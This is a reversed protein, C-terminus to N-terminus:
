ESGPGYFLFFFDNVEQGMSCFFFDNVEQGMSCFFFFTLVLEDKNPKASKAVWGFGLSVQKSYLNHSGLAAAKWLNRSKNRFNLRSTNGGRM